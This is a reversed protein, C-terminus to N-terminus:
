LVLFVRLGVSALRHHGGIVFYDDDIKVLEIPYDVDFGADRISEFAQRSTQREFKPEHIQKIKDIDM